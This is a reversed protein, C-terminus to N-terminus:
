EIVRWEEIIYDTPPYGMSRDHAYRDAVEAEADKRTGYVGQILGDEEEIMIYVILPTM